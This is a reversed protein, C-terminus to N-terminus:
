ATFEVRNPFSLVARDSQSSVLVVTPSTMSPAILTSECSKKKKKKKKKKQLCKTQFEKKAFLKELRISLIQSLVTSPQFKQFLQLNLLLCHLHLSCFFFFFHKPKEGVNERLLYVAAQWSSHPPRVMALKSTVGTCRMGLYIKSSCSIM